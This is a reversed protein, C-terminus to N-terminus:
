IGFRAVQKPAAEGMSPGEGVASWSPFNSRIEGSESLVVTDDDVSMLVVTGGDHAAFALAYELALDFDRESSGEAEEDEGTCIDSVVLFFGQPAASLKSLALRTVDPLSRWGGAVLMREEHGSLSLESLEELGDILRYGHLDRPRRGKAEIGNEGAGGGKAIVMEVNYDLLSTTGWSDEDEELRLGSTSEFVMSTTVVGRCLGLAEAAILGEEVSRGRTLAALGKIRAALVRDNSVFHVVSTARKGAATGGWALDVGGDLAAGEPGAHILRRWEGSWAWTVVFAAMISVVIGVLVRRHMPWEGFFGLCLRFYLVRGRAM